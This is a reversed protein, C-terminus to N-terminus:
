ALSPLSGGLSIWYNRLRTKEPNEELMRNFIVEKEEIQANMSKTAEEEIKKSSAAHGPIFKDILEAAAIFAEPNRSSQNRHLERLQYYPAVHCDAVILGSQVPEGFRLALKLLINFDESSFEDSEVWKWPIDDNSKGPLFDDEEFSDFTRFVSVDEMIFRDPTIKYM